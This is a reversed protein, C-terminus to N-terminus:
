SSEVVGLTGDELLDIKRVDSEGAAYNGNGDELGMREGPKGTRELVHHTKGLGFEVLLASVPLLGYEVGAHVFGDAVQDGVPFGIKGHHIGPDTEGFVMEAPRFAIWRDALDQGPEISM